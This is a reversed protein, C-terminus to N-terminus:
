AETPESDEEALKARIADDSADLATEIDETLLFIQYISKAHENLATTADDDSLGKRLFYEKLLRGHLDLSADRFRDIIKDVSSTRPM